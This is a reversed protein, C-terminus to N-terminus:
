RLSNRYADKIDRVYDYKNHIYAGLEKDLVKDFEAINFPGKEDDIEQM